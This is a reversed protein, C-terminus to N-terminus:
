AADEAGYGIAVIAAHVEARKFTNAKTLMALRQQAQTTSVQLELCVEHLPWKKDECLDLLERDLGPTWKAFPKVTALHAAVSRLEAPAKALDLTCAEAADPAKPPPMKLRRLEATLAERLKNNARWIAGQVPRGIRMAVEGCASAQSKGRAMLKAVEAVFDREEADTWPPPKKTAEEAARKPAEQAAVEPAPDPVPDPAPMNGQPTDVEPAEEPVPDPAVLDTKVVIPAPTGACEQVAILRKIQAEMPEPVRRAFSVGGLRIVPTEATLNFLPDMGGDALIRGAETMSVLLASMYDLDNLSLRSLDCTFDAAKKPTKDATKDSM